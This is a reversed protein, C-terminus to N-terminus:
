MHKGHYQVIYGSLQYPYKEYVVNDETFSYGLKFNAQAQELLKDAAATEGKKRLCISKYYQADSFKEYRQLTKDFFQIATTYDEKEMLTIGKYFWDMFHIFSDGGTKLETDITKNFYVLASDFENLGLYCIGQYFSYPHEMMTYNGKLKLAGEYDVLAERYKKYFICKQFARLDLYGHPDLEVAKDLYKEGIEYKRSKDYPMSKLEWLSANDPTIAIASDLYQQWQHSFYSYREAGNQVYKKEISDRLAKSSRAVSNQQAVTIHFFLLLPAAIWIKKSM